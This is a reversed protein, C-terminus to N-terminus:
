AAVPGHVPAAALDVALAKRRPAFGDWEEEMRFRAPRGGRCRELELLRAQHQGRDRGPAADIRWRTDLTAPHLGAGNSGRTLILGLAGGGEAALQLRRAPTLAVSQGTDLLVAAVSGDRLAEEAVWLADEPKAAHAIALRAPDIGRQVLGPGYLGAPRGDDRIWLIPGDIRALLFLAFGMAAEGTLEHLRGRELGGGPLAADVPALGTELVGWRGGMSARELRRLVAKLDGLSGPPKRDGARAPERPPAAPREPIPTHAALM